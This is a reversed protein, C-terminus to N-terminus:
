NNDKLEKISNTQEEVINTETDEIQNHIEFHMNSM